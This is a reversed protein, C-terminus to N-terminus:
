LAPRGAKDDKPATSPWEIPVRRLAPSVEGALVDRTAAREATRLARATLNLVARAEVAARQLEAQSPGSPPPYLAYWVGIVGVTIVAAAALRWDLGWRRLASRRDSRVTRDLVARLADDPMRLPPLERLGDQIAQLEARAARCDACGALHEDLRREDAEAPPEGDLRRHIAQLAVRCGWDRNDNM